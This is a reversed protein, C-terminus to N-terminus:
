FNMWRSFKILCTNTSAANFLDSFGRSLDFEGVPVFHDHGQQWVLVFAKTSRRGATPRSSRSRM